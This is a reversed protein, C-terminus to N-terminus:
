LRSAYKGREDVPVKIAEMAQEATWKMSDMLNRVASLIANDTGMEMGMELGKEKSEEMAAELEDKMLEKLAECMGSERRIRNYLSKNAFISAQLVADALKKIILLDMQLPKKSLNYERQFELEERNSILELEAAGYFGPHWQIETKELNDGM